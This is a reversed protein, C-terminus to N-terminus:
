QPAGDRQQVDARHRPLRGSAVPRAIAQDRIREDGGGDIRPQRWVGGSTPVSHLTCGIRHLLARAGDGVKERRGLRAKALTTRERRCTCGPPAHGCTTTQQGIKMTCPSGSIPQALQVTAFPQMM